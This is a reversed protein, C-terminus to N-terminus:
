VELTSSDGYGANCYAPDADPGFGLERRRCRFIATAQAYRPDNVFNEREGPDRQLDFLVEEHGGACSEHGYWQYKLADRKIMLNEEYQSITENAYRSHWPECQGRMLPVLSRSDLGRGHGTKGRPPLPVQTLECLTAFLDCLNVNEQVVRHSFRRPWRIILPVRASAEFFQQKWWLGHQGLMEGHDSCYIIIWDDLDQGAQRLAEVVRGFHADASEVMGYYAAKARRIDHEFVDEGPVIRGRSLYRHDFIPEDVFPRVRDLYYRFRAEDTQFPYHPETLGVRLLTPRLPTSREYQVDAFYNRIHLLAGEITYADLRQRWGMEAVPGSRQIEEALSWKKPRTPLVHRAFAEANRDDIYRESVGADAGIRVLWGQMQDPGTHHLHGCAVTAYAFQAFRRAFTMYGPPLDDHRVGCTRPFQGAMLAQRAPVCKPAPTYANAFVVGDRALWDLTPTRVVPDGAYGAVDARHEDSVLMLIHPPRDMCRAQALLL